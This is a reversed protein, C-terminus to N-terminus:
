ISTIFISLELPIGGADILVGGAGRIIIVGAAHAGLEEKYGAWAFKMLVEVDVGGIAECKVM